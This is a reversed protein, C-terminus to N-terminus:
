PKDLEARARRFVVVSELRTEASERFGKGLLDLAEDVADLYEDREATIRAVKALAEDRQAEAAEARAMLGAWVTHADAVAKELGNAEIYHGGDRHIVCLVGGAIDRERTLREIEADKAAMAADHRAQTASERDLVTKLEADKAALADAAEHHIPPVVFRSVFETPNDPEEGGAPGLGDRIPIRYEGRLRRQLSDARAQRAAEAARRELLESALARITDPNVHTHEWRFAPVDDCGDRIAAIQENTLRDTM